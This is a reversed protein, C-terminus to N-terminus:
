ASLEAAPNFGFTSDERTGSQTHIEIAGDDSVLWVEIAGQNLYLATKARLEAESNSPSVVEVCIEPARRLVVDSWYQALFSESCCAVDPVKVGDNTVIALEPMAEGGLKQKLLHTIRGVMRSHKTQTPSMRVAGWADTEIKYAIGALTEDNCLAEWARQHEDATLPDRRLQIAAGM